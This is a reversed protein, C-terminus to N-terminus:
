GGGIEEESVESQGGNHENIRRAYSMIWEKIRAGSNVLLDDGNGSCIFSNLSLSCIEEPLITLRNNSINLSVLENLSEIEKPLTTLENNSVDLRTLYNM